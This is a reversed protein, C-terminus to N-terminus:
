FSEMKGPAAVYQEMATESKKKQNQECAKDIAQERQPKMKQENM